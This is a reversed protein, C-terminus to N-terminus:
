FKMLGLMSVFMLSSVLVLLDFLCEVTCLDSNSSATILNLPKVILLSFSMEHFILQIFGLDIQCFFFESLLM